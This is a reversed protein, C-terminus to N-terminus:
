DFAKLELHIAGDVNSASAHFRKESRFVFAFETRGTQQFEAMRKEDAIEGLLEEANEPSIEPGQVVNEEGLRIVVPPEGTHCRLGEADNRTMLDLIDEMTYM